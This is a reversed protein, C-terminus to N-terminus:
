GLAEKIKSIIRFNYGTYYVHKTDGFFWVNYSPVLEESEVPSITGFYIIDVIMAPANDFWILDGIDYKPKQMKLKSYM